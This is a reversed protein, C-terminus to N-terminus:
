FLDEGNRNRDTLERWASYGKGDEGQGSVVVWQQECDDCQWITGPRYETAPPFDTCTHEGQPTFVIRGAM